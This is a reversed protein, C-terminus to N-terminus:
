NQLTNVRDLLISLAVVLAPELTPPQHRPYPPLSVLLLHLLFRLLLRLPLLVSPSPDSVPPASSSPGAVPISSSLTKKGIPKMTRTYPVDPPFSISFAFYIRKILCAYLLNHKKSTSYFTNIMLTCIVSGIDITDGVLLAYLFCVQPLSLSSLYKIPFLNTFTICSIVYTPPPSSM